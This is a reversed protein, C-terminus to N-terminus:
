AVEEALRKAARERLEATKIKASGTLNLEDATFFLVRRPVKYSALKERAYAKVSDESIDAGEHPVICGVVLEGLLDDPVGVTQTAKVGPCRSIIDDIEIPSVNAGGTKIIDNLRGEWFLRGESDMWGGDNTCLFGEDDLTEDLPIGVYGLMLTPGKVAIEGREGFPLTEGTLPDVIKVTSGPTPIGHSGKAIEFPTLSPYVTILTFTETNGFAARNDLWDTKVTPHKGVPTDYPVYHMASLDTELFNAAAELQAWQHPWGILKSVREQEMLRLAEEAQFTPQLVLCGGTSLTSGLTMCFNGSWFFGNATWTRIKEHVIRYWHPWRWLQLCVARHSSLIGKPKGTSGSSFFLVGPDAPAVEAACADVLEPAVEASRARFASWGEIAGKGDESDIMAIHRLFPFKLSNLEGPRSTAIQPELETLIEAFDKKLVNREFLLVSVGSLRLLAELEAPTSFTSLPTAVGGALAAGFFCSFYELRNTTMIGVRTGKGIGCAVLARAVEMANAGLEGYSWRIMGEGATDRMCGMENDAFRSTVEKAYAGLTLPGIGEEESLPIGRAISLREDVQITSTM